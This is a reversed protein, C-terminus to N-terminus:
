DLSIKLVTKIFTTDLNILYEVQDSVQVAMRKLLQMMLKIESECNNLTEQHLVPMVNQIKVELNTFTHEFTMSLIKVIAIPGIVKFLSTGWVSNSVANVIGGNSVTYSLNRLRIAHNTDGQGYALKILNLYWLIRTRFKKVLFYDPDEPNLLNNLFHPLIHQSMSTCIKCLDTISLTDVEDVDLDLLHITM